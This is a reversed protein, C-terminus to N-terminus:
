NSGEDNKLKDKAKKVAEAPTRAKVAVAVPGLEGPAFYYNRYKAGSSQEQDQKKDAM